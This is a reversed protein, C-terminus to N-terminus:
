IFMCCYSDNRLKENRNINKMEKATSFRIGNYIKM